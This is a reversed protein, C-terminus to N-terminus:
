RLVPVRLTIRTGENPSSTVRMDGTVTNVWARGISDLSKGTLRHEVLQGGIGNDHITFEVTEPSLPTLTVEVQNADGSRVANAVLERTMMDVLHWTSEPLEMVSPLDLDVSCIGEWESPVQILSDYGALSKEPQDIPSGLISRAKNISATIAAVNDSEAALEIQLAVALLQSQVRHHLFTAADAANRNEIARRVETQWFGTELLRDMERLLKIQHQRIGALAIVVFCLVVSAMSVVLSGSTDVPMNMIRGVGELALFTTPGVLLLLMGSLAESKSTSVQVRNRLSLLTFVVVGVVIGTFLAIIPGRGIIAGFATVVGTIATALVVPARWYFLARNTVVRTPLTPPRQNSDAWMRHSTPRVRDLAATHIESAITLMARSLDQDPTTTISAIRKSALNSESRALSQAEDWVTSQSSDRVGESVVQDFRAAFTSRYDRTAQVVHGAALLWLATFIISSAVQTIGADLPFGTNAQWLLWWLIIGRTTGALIVGLARILSSHSGIRSGIAVILAVVAQTILAYGVAAPLSGVAQNSTLVFVVGITGALANLAQASISGISQPFFRSFM